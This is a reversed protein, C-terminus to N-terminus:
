LVFLDVCEGLYFPDIDSLDSLAKGICILESAIKYKTLNQSILVAERRSVFEGIDEFKTTWSMDRVRYFEPSACNIHRYVFYTNKM